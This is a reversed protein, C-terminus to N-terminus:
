HIREKFMWNSASTQYYHVAIPPITEGTVPM